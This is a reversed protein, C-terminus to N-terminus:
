TNAELKHLEELALGRGRMYSTSLLNKQILSLLFAYMKKPPNQYLARDRRQVTQVFKHEGRTVQQPNGGVSFKM